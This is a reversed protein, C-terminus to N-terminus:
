CPTWGAPTSTLPGAASTMRPVVSGSRCCMRWGLLRRVIMARNAWPCARAVILRYRGPEVPYGDRGDATIRTTIFKTDRDFESGAAVYSDDDEDDPQQLSAGTQAPKRGAVVSKGFILSGSRRRNRANGYQANM